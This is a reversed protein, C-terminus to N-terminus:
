GRPAPVQETRNRGLDRVYINTLRQDDADALDEAESTFAVVSGDGSFSPEGSGGHGPCGSSSRTAAQEVGTDLDIVVIDDAGNTDEPGTSLATQIAAFRGDASLAAIPGDPQGLIALPTPRTWAARRWTTVLPAVLRTTRTARDRLFIAPRNDPQSGSGFLIRTGDASMGIFWGGMSRGDPGISIVETTAAQRDRLFVDAGPYTDEAALSGGAAGATFAVFRGGESVAEAWSWTQAGLGGRGISIRETTGAQLDRLYAELSGRERDSPVLNGARSTFAVFRGEPSVVPAGAWDDPAGGSTSVSGRSTQATGVDRVYVRSGASFAVRTGDASMSAEAAHFRFQLGTGDLSVRIIEGTARDVRFVDTRQNTDGGVLDGVHSAFAVYRGDGSLRPRWSGPGKAPVGVDRAASRGLAAGDTPCGGTAQGHPLAWVSGSPAAAAM